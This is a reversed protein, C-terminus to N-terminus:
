SRRRSPEFPPDLKPLGIRVTSRFLTPSGELIAANADAQSVIGIVPGYLPAVKIETNIPWQDVPYLDALLVDADVMLRQMHTNVEADYKRRGYGRFVYDITLNFYHPARLTLGGRGSQPALGRVVLATMGSLTDHDTAIIEVLLKFTMTSSTVLWGGNNPVATLQPTVMVNSLPSDGDPPLVAVSPATFGDGQEPAADITHFSALPKGNWNPFYLGDLYEALARMAAGVADTEQNATPPVETADLVLETRGPTPTYRLESV